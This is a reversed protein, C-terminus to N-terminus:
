RAELALKSNFVPRSKFNPDYRGDVETCIMEGTEPTFSIFKNPTFYTYFEAPTLTLNFDEYTMNVSALIIKEEKKKEGFDFRMQSPFIQEPLEFKVIQFRM